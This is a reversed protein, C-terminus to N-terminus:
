HAVVLLLGSYGVAALLFFWFDVRGAQPLEHRFTELVIGGAILALVIALAAEDLAIVRAIAGGVVVSGAIVFRGVRRYEDPYQEALGHDVILYHLGLAVTFLAVDRASGESDGLAYGVLLGGIAATGIAVGARDSAHTLAFRQNGFAVILGVLAFLYVHRELFPLLGRGEVAAQGEALEPLLEVFVYAVAIGGAASLTRRHWHEGIGRVGGAVVPVTALALLAILIVM